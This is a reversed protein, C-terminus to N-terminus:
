LASASARTTAHIDVIIKSDSQFNKAPTRNVNAQARDITMCGSSKAARATLPRQAVLRAAAQNPTRDPPVAARLAWRRASRPLKPRNYPGSDPRSAVNLGASWWGDTEATTSAVNLFEPYM